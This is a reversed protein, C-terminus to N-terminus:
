GYITITVTRRGWARAEALTPFWLDIINGKIATGTDAAIGPGYGPIFLRTGLPIVSPDVAVVGPGVPLGSATRGPLSYAVADAVFTRTGAAPAPAEEAPPAPEAGADDASRPPSPAEASPAPAAAPPDATPPSVLRSREEAARAQAQLTALERRTLEGQRRLSALYAARAGVRREVAAAAAQADAVARQLAARRERAAALRSRLEAAQERAEQALLRNQRAAYSLADLGALAEDLSTAGLVVAIPDSDGEVYLTRLAVALRAQSSELSRRTITLRQAAEAEERRLSALSGDLRAVAARARAVESEAAYLGLLAAHARRELATAEAQLSAVSDAGGASPALGAALAGAALAAVLPTITRSPRPVVASRVM